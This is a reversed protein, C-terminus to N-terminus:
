HLLKGLLSVPGVGRAFHGVDAHNKLSTLLNNFALIKDLEEVVQTVGPSLFKLITLLLIYVNTFQEYSCSILINKLYSPFLISIIADLTQYKM